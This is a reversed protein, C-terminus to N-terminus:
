EWLSWSEPRWHIQFSSARPAWLPPWPSAPKSSCHPGFTLNDSPRIRQLAACKTFCLCAFTLFCHQQKHSKGDGLM